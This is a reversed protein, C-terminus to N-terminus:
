KKWNYQLKKTSISQLDRMLVNASTSDTVNPMTINFVQNIPQQNMTNNVVNASEIVKVTEKIKEKFDNMPTLCEYTGSMWAKAAENMQQQSILNGYMDKWKYKQVEYGQARLRDLVSPKNVTGSAYAKGFSTGKNNLIKKTQEENYVATGKPLNGVTPENTIEYKGNPYVTLETQGYESRLANKEDHKLEDTGKAFASGIHSNHSIGQFKDPVSHHGSGGATKEAANIAKIAAICADVVSTAMENVCDVISANISCVEENLTQFAPIWTETISSSIQEGGSEIAGVVTDAGSNKDGKNNEKNDNKNSNKGIPSSMSGDKGSSKGVGIVNALDSQFQAWITTCEQLKMDMATKCTELATVMPTFLKEYKGDNQSGGALPDGNGGGTGFADSFAGNWAEPIGSCIEKFREVFSALQTLVTGDEGFTAMLNDVNVSPVEYNSIETSLNNLADTANQIKESADISANSANSLNTNLNSTDASNSADTVKQVSDEISGVDGAIQGAIGGINEASTGFQNVMNMIDTLTVDNLSHIIGTAHEYDSIFSNLFDANGSLIKDVVDNGYKSMMDKELLAFNINDEVETWKSKQEELLAIQEEIKKNESDMNKEITEKRHNLKEIQLDYKDNLDDLKDELAEKQKQLDAITIDFKAQEVEEKTNKIDSDNTVYHLGKDESYQLITRQSMAKQLNYMKQQLNLAREREDNADQMADIEDQVADIQEQWYEKEKDRKDELAKIVSEISDIEKNYSDDSNDKQKNLEDIKRQFLKEAYSSVKDLNDKYDNWYDQWLKKLGEAIQEENKRYDDLYKEHQGSAEGFYKENLAIRQNYYEEDSILGMEHLHELEALEKEYAEKWADKKNGGSGSKNSKNGGAYNVQVKNMASNVDEVFGAYDSATLSTHSKQAQEEAHAIKAALATNGYEAALQQLKQIKQEVNLDQNSFVQEQAILLLLYGRATESAGAENLFAVAEESTANILDYGTQTAFQKQLALAQMKGNLADYVVEHANAVGMEELQQEISEATADNLNNLTDTSYFYATALDNFAQQVQDATSASNTLTDFFKDLNSTDFGELEEFASKIGSLMDNDVDDISFGNETFIDQYADGLEKFASSLQDKIQQVSTTITSTIQNIDTDEAGNVSVSIDVDTSLGSFDQALLDIISSQLGQSTATANKMAEEMAQYEKTTTPIGNQVMYDLKLEEYKKSIYTDMSDSMANIANNIDKYIETDLLSEDDKSGAVLLERAKILSNYYNVAQEPDDSVIDWSINKWTRNITEYEGLADSVIDVAKQAEDSLQKGASNSNISVKSGKIASWIDNQFEEEASKRGVVASTYQEELEAKTLERLTDTYEQTGVTLGKLAEARDGLISTINEIVTKYEEEQDTTKDTIKSLRDYQVYVERLNEATESASNAAEINAKRTEELKQKYSSYAMVTASVAATILVFPNAILTNWLGMAANKLSTTAATLGTQATTLGYSELVLKSEEKSLGSNVLIQERQANTLNKSSLLLKMQSQSLNKSLLLLKDFSDTSITTQKTIKLANQFQNLSIYAENIGTRIALFGKIGGMTALGTFAGKLANTEDVFKVLATTADLIDAYVEDFDSNVVMSEFTAQLTNEKAELSNAYSNNFKDLATGASNAAVETLELVKNYNEMLAIFRNQQRTGAAVKILANQQVSTLSNWKDAMEQLVTEFDRFEGQQDRLQIGVSKLVSEYNSIDEGDDSLYKGITVDRYRSLMTNAFTGVVEASQQTRDQVTGLIAVLKNFSVEASAASSASYKLGTALDGSSTAAQFDIAVMADLAKRLEEASMNYGNMTALLDETAESSSIQGLKSLMVSDQILDKAESMNKGARLWDDAASTVEITTSKLDQAFKNYDKVLGATAERTMGSAISLDTIAKDVDEITQSANKSAKRIENLVALYGTMALKGTSFTDSITNRLKGFVSNTNKTASTLKNMSQTAEDVKDGSISVDINYKGKQLQKLKEQAEEDDLNVKLNIPM